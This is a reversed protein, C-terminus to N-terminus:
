RRNKMRNKRQFEQELKIAAACEKEDLDEADGDDFQVHWLAPEDAPNAGAMAWKVVKGVNTGIKAGYDRRVVKGVWMHGSTLWDVEEEAEEKERTNDEDETEDNDTEEDTGTNKSSALIHIAHEVEHEELDEEDGDDFVVHWLAPEKVTRGEKVAPAWKTVTGDVTGNKGFDRRLPEGIWPHGKTRWTDEEKAEEKKDKKTGGGAKKGAKGKKSAPEEAMSGRRKRKQNSAGEDDSETEDADKKGKYLKPLVMTLVHIQAMTQAEKVATEWEALACLDCSSRVRGGLALLAPALEAATSADGLRKSFAKCATADKKDAGWATSRTELESLAGCVKRLAKDHEPEQWQCAADPSIQSWGNAYHMHKNAKKPDIEDRVEREFEPKPSAPTSPPM